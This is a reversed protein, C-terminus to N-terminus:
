IDDPMLEMKLQMVLDTMLRNRTGAAKDTYDRNDYFDAAVALLLQKLRMDACLTPLQKSVAGMAWQEAAAICQNLNAIIMEDDTDIGLYGRLEDTSIISM